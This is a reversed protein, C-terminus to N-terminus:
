RVQKKICVLFNNLILITQNYFYNIINDITKLSTNKITILKVYRISDESKAYNKNLIMKMHTFGIEKNNSKKSQDNKKLKDHFNFFPFGGVIASGPIKM